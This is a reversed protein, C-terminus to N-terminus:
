LFDKLVHKEKQISAPEAEKGSYRCNTLGLHYIKSLFGLTFILMPLSITISSPHQSLACIYESSMRMSFNDMTLYKNVAHCIFPWRGMERCGSVQSQCNYPLPMDSKLMLFSCGSLHELCWAISNM